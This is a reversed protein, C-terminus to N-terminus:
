AVGRYTGGGATERVAPSFAPISRVPVGGGCLGGAGFLGAARARERRVGAGDESRGISQRARVHARSGAVRGALVGALLATAPMHLPFSVLAEICIVIFALREAREGGRNIVALAPVVLIAAGLPGIEVLAQLVDSHAFEVGPYAARFWGLGHGTWDLALVAAGWLIVRQQASSLKEPGLLLLSLACLGAVLVLLVLAAGRPMYKRLGVICTIVAAAVATRSECLLLPVLAFTALWLRRSFLAWVLLPAAIEALVERNFFLGAPSSDQAVGRVDFGYKQLAAVGASIALGVCMGGLFREASEMEAGAICALAVLVMLFLDLTGGMHDPSLLLSAAGGLLVAGIAAQMPGNLARPDLRFLLPLGVAIVAWRPAFAASLLGPWYAVAVVFGFAGLVGAYM